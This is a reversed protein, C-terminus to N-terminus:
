GPPNAWFTKSRKSCNWNKLVFIWSNQSESAQMFNRLDNQEPYLHDFSLFRLASLKQRGGSEECVGTHWADWTCWHKQVLQTPRPNRPPYFFNISSSKQTKGPSPARCLPRGFTRRWTVVLSRQWCPLKWGALLPQQLSWFPAFVM